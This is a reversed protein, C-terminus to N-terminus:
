DGYDWLMAFVFLVQADARVRHNQEGGSGDGPVGLQGTFCGPSCAEIPGIGDSRLDTEGPPFFAIATATLARGTGPLVTTAPKKPSTSATQLQDRFVPSGRCTSRAGRYLRVPRTRAAGLASGVGGVGGGARRHASSVAGPVAGGALTDGLDM